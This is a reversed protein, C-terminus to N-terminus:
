ATCVSLHMDTVFEPEILSPFTVDRASANKKGAVVPRVMVDSAKLNKM